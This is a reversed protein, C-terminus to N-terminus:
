TLRLWDVDILTMICQNGGRTTIWTKSLPATVHTIKEPRAVRLQGFKLGKERLRVAFTTYVVLPHQAAYYEDIATARHAQPIRGACSATCRDFRNLSFPM